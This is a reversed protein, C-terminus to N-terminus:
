FAGPLCRPHTKRPQKLCYNMNFLALCAALSIYSLLLQDLFSQPTLYKGFYPFNWKSSSRGGTHTHFRKPVQIAEGQPVALCRREEVPILWVVMFGRPKWMPFGLGWEGRWYKCQCGVPMLVQCDKRCQHLASSGDPGLSSSATASSPAASGDTGSGWWGCSCVAEAWGGTLGRCGSSLLELVQSFVTHCHFCHPHTPTDSCLCEQYAGPVPVGWARSAAQLHSSLSSCVASSHETHFCFTIVQIGKQHGCPSSSCPLSNVGSEQTGKGEPGMLSVDVEPSASLGSFLSQM